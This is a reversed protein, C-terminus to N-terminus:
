HGQTEDAHKAIWQDLENGGQQEAKFDLKTGDPATVSGVRHGSAREVQKVLRGISLRNAARKFPGPWLRLLDQKNVAIGYVTCAPHPHGDGMVASGEAWDIQAPGHQPPYSSFLEPSLQEEGEHYPPWAYQVFGRSRVNGALARVLALKPAREHAAVHALAAPLPIFETRTPNQRTTVTGGGVADDIL